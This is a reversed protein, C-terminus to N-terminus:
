WPIEDNKKKGCTKIALAGAPCVLCQNCRMCERHNPSQYVAIDVPCQSECVGCGNCKHGDLQLRYLSIGNFISYIAGLPCFFRCFPKFILMALLLLGILFVAKAILWISAAALPTSRVLMLPLNGELVEAPCLYRCFPTSSLGYGALAPLLLVFVLLILYKVYELRRYSERWAIKPLPVKFILEQILGFPCFWGCVLRGLMIGALLIFGVILITAPATLMGAIGAQLMGVPCSGLAGPCSTCNFSLCPIQKLSGQYLKGEMFGVLYGNFGIASIIQIIRRGPKAVATLRRVL